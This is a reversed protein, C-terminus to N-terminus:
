DSELKATYGLAHVASIIQDISVTTEDYVVTMKAKRYSAEVTKVGPLTEELEQLRMACNVCHMDEVKFHSVIM